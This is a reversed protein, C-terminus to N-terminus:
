FFIVGASIGMAFVLAYGVLVWLTKRDMNPPVQFEDTDGFGYTNYFRDLIRWANDQKLFESFLETAKDEKESIM